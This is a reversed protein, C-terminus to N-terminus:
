IKEGDFRIEFFRSTESWNRKKIWNWFGERGVGEVGQWDNSKAWKYMTDLGEDIWEDMNKGACHEIHLMKLGSPYTHINTIVCGIIDLSNEKFIVWLSCENNGMRYLIDIPRVRGYSRQCSRRLIKECDGWVESILDPTILSVQYDKEIQKAPENM